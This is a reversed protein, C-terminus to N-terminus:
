FNLKKAYEKDHLNITGGSEGGENQIVKTVRNKTLYNEVVEGDVVHILRTAYKLYDLDHTIMIITLGKANVDLFTQILNQGSVTDLNGTPEDAVILIPDIVLARALGVKQQQGSSLERPHYTGWDDMGVMKLVEAGKQQIMEPNYDLLHLAFVVNNYINMSNIWLPQQYIMGVRHRRFIAREDENMQYFDKGDVYITGSTPAELGLLCHLLTSKGSGSPGFIIAFDGETIELNANKLVHVDQEGVKFVKELNEGKIFVKSSKAM